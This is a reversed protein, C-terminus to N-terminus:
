PESRPEIAVSEEALRAYAGGIRADTASAPMEPSPVKVSQLKSKLKLFPREMWAFSAAAMALTLALSAVAYTVFGRVTSTSVRASVLHIAITHYAYLGYSIRGLYALPRWRMGSGITAVFIAGCAVVILPYGLIIPGATVGLSRTWWGGVFVLVGLAVATLALRQWVALTVARGRLLVSLIAGFAIADLHAFTVNWVGVDEKPWAIRAIWAIAILIGGATVIRRPTPTRVIWPWVLYFQEEVCLSWLPMVFPHTVAGSAVLWNGSFAVFWLAHSPALYPAVFVSVGLVLFYVPWIRLARRAYFARVDIRGAADHERMLLDTILYASLVFFLDVGTAGANLAGILVDTVSAPLGVRQFLAANRPVLHHLFVGLFAFFRLADLEPRYVARRQPPSPEPQAAGGARPRDDSMSRM